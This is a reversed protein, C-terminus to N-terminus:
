GDLSAKGLLFMRIAAEDLRSAPLEMLHATETWLLAARVPRDPFIRQVALRYASLQLVYAEPVEGAERPPPRNTKYDVILVDRDTVVLRDLQGTVRVTEGKGDPPELEAVIPVEARSGPGFVRAFDSHALVALTEEVISARTAHALAAGRTAVFAEAATRRADADLGPLHQLLAHTITGRLFRNGAALAAPSPAPPEDAPREPRPMEIPDGEADTDLPALRSPALPVAIGPEKPAKAEAWLPPQRAEVVGHAEVRREEADAQQAAELRRVTRGAADTTEALRGGLGQEIADYWCGKGRGRGGEYGAVYLRDRPRTLAVYHLRNHEETERQRVAERAAKVAEVASTGKVPWLFPEVDDLGLPLGKMRYSLLGGPPGTNPASCTDPLFVIPAELGKSGHVTMVRVEDRGHEMDRKIDRESSRLWDMFGQLSPPAGEDYALALSLLEDLPDAAEPGLRALLRKRMGDHVLVEVLFEYPPVVDARSRWRKLLDAAAQFRPNDKAALLASWLSGRRGPALAMLDDDDLGLMPSKLVAALSLDDEPLLLVDSLAVVDLVALQDALRLRDAGAVPIGRRKLASVMLDAFPRRRRVLVLIDGCRIPRRESALMEGSAIWGAITGAIREALRTAPDSVAEEELPQWAPSPEPDDPQEPQWVEVLGGMGLRNAVHRQMAGVSTLGAGREEHDLIADVADLIPAVTRFSLTLPVQEFRLGAARALDGFCKGMDAFMKPAAGQFGYISQKEDGVAFVTRPGGTELERAGLGALFERALAEIVRWQTPSTDQAEDVLIHDLGGDLKYLVWQADESERLLNGTARILDDFDLAARRQKLEHYRQMTASALHLVAMTAEAVALCGLKDGLALFDRQASVLRDAIDPSTEALKKTMVKARPDGSRTLLLTALGAIRGADDKATLIAAIDAARERDTKTGGDLVERARQLHAREIVRARAAEISERTDGPEIGLASKYLAAATDLPGGGGMGIRSAAELWERRGLADKLLRDFGDDSAYRIVASLARGLDSMPASNAAELVASTAEGVLRSQMEDDLIAFGPPIGAELPFRQLLRECFAHITQVKLGGPTEIARTFLDRSRAQEDATPHRGLVSSLADTLHHDDATVWRALRDFVRASMEAAAAKTYTLCLLREPPTGALLLRLVRTTLVHTKGTGANASVWASVHPDAALGQRRSTDHRAADLAATHVRSSM